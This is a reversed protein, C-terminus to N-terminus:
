RTQLIIKELPWNMDFINDKMACEAEFLRHLLLMFRKKTYRRLLAMKKDFLGGKLYPYHSRVAEAGKEEDLQLIHLATQTQTRLSSVIALPAIQEQLLECLIHWAQQTQDAFLADTLQWLTKQPLVLSIARLDEQKIEKREGVYCILKEVEQILLQRQAGVAAVLAKAVELPLVVAQRASYECLEESLRKEAEWPKEAAPQYVVGTVQFEQIFKGKLSSAELCVFLKPDLFRLAQNLQSLADDKLSEINKLCVFRNTRFLSLTSIELFFEQLQQSTFTHRIAKVHEALIECVRDKEAEDDCIVLLRQPPDHEIRRRLEVPTSIKM